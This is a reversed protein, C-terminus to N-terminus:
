PNNQDLQQCVKNAVEAGMRMAAHMNPYCFAGQRGTSYLKDFTDVYTNVADLHQEFGLSFMPYAEPCQLTHFQVVEDQTCIGEQQLEDFLKQKLSSSALWRDDGQECTLEIILVTHNEPTVRLGANKPEGIRHFIRDRYYVYLADLAKPKNLLLGYIVVPKYRLQAGAYSINKPVAPEIAKILKPMPITSICYAGSQSQLQAHNQDQYMIEVGAQKNSAKVQNVCCGLMVEGGMRQIQAMMQRPMAEAGTNSYYLTEESLASTVKPEKFNKFGLKTLMSILVDRVDLRPMKLRVFTASLKSPHVGWYRETFQAFFFRYLPRGYLQILAQEANEPQAPILRNKVEATLLGAICRILTFPPIGKIIDRFQLPYRFHQGLWRVRADLEVTTSESGMIQRVHALIEADFGHLMHVGLDFYNGERLQGAALGGPTKEREIITVPIGASCLTLGAYLGCVGAGLIVVRKTNDQNIPPITSM